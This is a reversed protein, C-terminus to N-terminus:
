PSARMWVPLDPPEPATTWTFLVTGDPATTVQVLGEDVAWTRVADAGAQTGLLYGCALLLCAVTAYLLVALTWNRLNTM